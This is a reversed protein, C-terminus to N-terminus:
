WRNDVEEAWGPLGDVTIRGVGALDVTGHWTGFCQRTSNRVLGFNVADSRTYKPRLTLNVAGDPTRVKWPALWSGPSYTWELPTGIKHCRGDLFIANETMPTGDTWKGGLQLGVRRGDALGAGSGWNWVVTRPWRGRGFDWTAWADDFTYQTSGRIVTGRAPLATQKVTYQFLDDSWPVVVAMVEDTAERDVEIDAALGEALARLRVGTPTPDIRLSVKRTHVAVAAAGPDQPLELRPRPTIAQWSHEQGAPDLFWAAHLGAYGLDSITLAFVMDAQQVAWYEWRKNRSHRPLNATILPQRAWGVAQRNLRGDPRCLPVPETLETEIPM